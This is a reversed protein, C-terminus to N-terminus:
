RVWGYRNVSRSGLRVGTKDYRRVKLLGWSFPDMYSESAFMGIQFVMNTVTTAGVTGGKGRLLYKGTEDLFKDGVRGEGINCGLFLVHAESRLFQQPLSTVMFDLGEFQTGDSFCVAGPLGHTDFVLYKVLVFSKIASELDKRSRVAHLATSGGVTGLFENAAPEFQPDYLYLNDVAQQLEM